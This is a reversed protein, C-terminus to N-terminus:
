ESGARTWAIFHIRPGSTYEEDCTIWAFRVGDAICADVQDAAIEWKARFMADEPIHAEERRADDDIWCQPLYIDSAFARRSRTKAFRQEHLDLTPGGVCNDIKALRAVDMAAARRANQRRAQRAGLRRDRWHRRRLRIRGDGYAAASVRDARPGLCIAVLVTSANRVAMGIWLAIPESVKESSITGDFGLSYYVFISSCRRSKSFLDRFRELRRRAGPELAEIEDTTMM